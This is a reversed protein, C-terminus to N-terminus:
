AIGLDIQYPLGKNHGISKKPVQQLQRILLDFLKDMRGVFEITTAASPLQGFRLYLTMGM